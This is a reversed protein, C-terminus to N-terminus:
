RILTQILINIERNAKQTEKEGGLWENNSFCLQKWMDMRQFRHQFFFPNKLHELKKEQAILFGIYSLM